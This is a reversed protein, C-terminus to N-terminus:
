TCHKSLADAVGPGVREWRFGLFRPFAWSRSYLKQIEGSPIPEILTELRFGGAEFSTVYQELPRHVHTTRFSTQRKTIVFPADIAIEHDYRFWPEIDYGWYRPWFCPHTLVAIFPTGPRLIQSLASIFGRLDSVTMLTMVAVAATPKACPAQATWDELMSNVFQINSIGDCVRRAVAMSVASPEIAIVQGALNALQRTFDGTGCGIDLVVSVDSGGLLEMTTPVIVHHFSLDIGSAIQRHREEALQDWEAALDIPSKAASPKIESM